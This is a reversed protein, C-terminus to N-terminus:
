EQNWWYTKRTALSFTSATTHCATFLKYGYFPKYLSAELSIWGVPSMTQVIDPGISTLKERLGIMRMYGATQQHSLVHLTYGDLKEVAGPVLEASDDFSGYTEGFDSIWYYPPLDMTVVHTEIGLRALYKPLSSELYGM